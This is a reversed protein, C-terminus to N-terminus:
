RVDACDVVVQALIQEPDDPDVARVEGQELEPDDLCQQEALQQMEADAEIVHAGSTPPTPEEAPDAGEDSCSVSVLAFAVVVLLGSRPGAFTPLRSLMARRYGRRVPGPPRATSM